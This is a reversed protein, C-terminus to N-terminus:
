APCRLGPEPAQRRLLYRELVRDLCANADLSSTHTTGDVTVLRANGLQAALSEAWAVPTAPDGTTGVVVIPPAGPATVSTPEANVPPVPWFACPVSLGINSAGFYPAQRAASAQLAPVDAADLAPGDVCSIALFSPWEAAYSGSPDRLMYADFFALLADPDGDRADALARALPRYGGEGAYLPAALAIDLQTPGLMQGDRELPDREIRSRLADLAARPDGDNHFACDDRRACDDLFADLAQEFGKAQQLSVAEVPIAPDVAGDLVLARVRDPYEQAYLAGLYTGYSLGLYSLEDDGVAARIRDMDHVTDISAIHRLLDGSGQECARAFRASAEALATAEAADDPATDVDFHYDLKRGCDVPSSKGTGRADWGVIDFRDTISEPLASAVSEVFDTGPAGPGGPNVLLSGIRAEPDAAPARALALEIQEGGPDAPDLPVALTACEGEDCDSWDLERAGPASTSSSAASAPPASSGDGNSCAALAVTAVLVVLGVALRTRLRLSSMPGRQWVM